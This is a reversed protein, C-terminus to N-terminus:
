RLEELQEEIKALTEPPIDLEPPSTGDQWGRNLRWNQLVNRVVIFGLVLGLVPLLWVLSSFGKREPEALVREGYQAVFYDIIQDETWGEALQSKIQARWDQCAQTECVDLPTNPCVPCYLKKAIENVENDTPIVGEGRQAHVASGSFLSALITLVVIWTRSKM